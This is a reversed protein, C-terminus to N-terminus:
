SNSSPGCSRCQGPPIPAAVFVVLAKVWNWRSSTPKIVSTPKLNILPQSLITISCRSFAAAFTAFATISSIIIVIITEEGGVLWGLNIVVFPWGKVKLPALLLRHSACPHPPGELLRSSFGGGLGLRGSHLRSSFGGGLGLRGSHLGLLFLSPYLCLCPAPSLSPQTEAPAPSSSPEKGPDKVDISSGRGPLCHLIVSRLISPLPVASPFHYAASSSLSSVQLQLFM